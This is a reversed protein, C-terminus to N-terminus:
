EPFSIKFRESNDQGWHLRFSEDLTKFRNCDLIRKKSFDDVKEIDM